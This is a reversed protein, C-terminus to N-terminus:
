KWWQERREIAKEPTGVRPDAEAKQRRRVSKENSKEVEGDRAVSLPKYEEASDKKKSSQLGYFKQLTSM